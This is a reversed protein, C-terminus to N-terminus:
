ESEPVAEDEKKNKKFFSFFIVGLFLLLLTCSSALSVMEGTYYSKPEFKFDITHKGSPIIMARLIYNARFHSVPKQDIYANWGKDYYIESFVALQDSICKSEYTLANPSYKTLKITGTSDFNLKINKLESEFRKDIIAESAADFKTLAHIESDANAVLRYSKVFWANGLAFPNRQAVPGQEKTPVIVYRTNLMNLVQMNNKSIQQEIIEQYRKMKAGSYGGISKHFYSTSADNFPDIAVNFVRYDPDPDKLIDLDAQTPLYPTKAETKTIFLDNNVYRKNVPWLDAIFLVGALVIAVNAKMKKIAAFYVVGAMLLIFVLSRLSDMRFMSERDTRITDMPWGHQTYQADNATTFDFFAGPMLAFILTLGGVIGLSWKLAKLLKKKDITNKLIHDLSLIALLPLSFEAIILIMSVTRFKNYGPLYDFFFNTFGMFNRGWALMISIIITLLLWWKMYGKLLFMGLVFLFIVTAGAYVPGSTSPQDGWYLPLQKVMQKAQVSGYQKNFYDYTDSSTSLEGLSSGGKANPILLTLTESVGYSWGTAYSRDLGSTKDNKNSTLESEGRMSVKGYEYTLWLNTINCGIALIGAFILICTAKLFQLIKKELIAKGFEFCGFLLIIMFTYYTIQLHNAILQLTFFIGFLSAGLLLKKNYTLYVGGILVPMYGLAMAKTIHGPELIVFFYSSFGYAIAGAISLWPNVRFALLAIYFGLLYLFVMGAPKAGDLTLIQHLKIFLNNRAVGIILYTPMGGFMANTWLAIEGTKDSYDSAEKSVGTYQTVDSQKLCKGELLPSFYAFTIVLFLVVAVVHPALSKFSISQM